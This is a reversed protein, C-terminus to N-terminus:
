AAGGQRPLLYPSDLKGLQALTDALSALAPGLDRFGTLAADLRQSCTEMRSVLLRAEVLQDPAAAFRARRMSGGCVQCVLAALRPGRKPNFNIRTCGAGCVVQM